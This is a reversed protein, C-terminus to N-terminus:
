QVVVGRKLPQGVLEDKAYKLMACAANNITIISGNLSTIILADSM